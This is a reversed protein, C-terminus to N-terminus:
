IRFKGERVAEVVDKKLMLNKVNINPIVVGQDSNLGPEHV